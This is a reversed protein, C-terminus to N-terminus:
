EKNPTPRQNRIKTAVGSTHIPKPWTHRVFDGEMRLKGQIKGQELGSLLESTVPEEALWDPCKERWTNKPPFCRNQPGFRAFLARFLM